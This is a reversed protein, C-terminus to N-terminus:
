NESRQYPDKPFLVVTASDDPDPKDSFAAVARAARGFGEGSELRARRLREGLREDAERAVRSRHWVVWGNAALALVFGAGLLVEFWRALLWGM